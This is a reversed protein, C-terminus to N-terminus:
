RLINAARGPYYWMQPSVDTVANVVDDVVLSPDQLILLLLLYIINLDVPMIIVEASDMVMRNGETLQPTPDNYQSQVEMPADTFTKLAKDISNNMVM